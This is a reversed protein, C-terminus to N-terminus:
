GGKKVFFYFELRLKKYLFQINSNFIIMRREEIVNDKIFYDLFFRKLKKLDKRMESRIINSM